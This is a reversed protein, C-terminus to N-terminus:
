QRTYRLRYIRGAHDDSILLSGDALQLVDVPRGLVRGGRLWGQVLPEVGPVAHDWRVAVVRYGIKESRNWSGHEAVIAARDYPPPFPSAGQRRYFRMGLPAVHAPLTVEPAIFDACIGASGFEPDVVRGGHCYPFGYHAGAATVRNIEGPPLDDGLWDRGNDTFWLQGTDPHWSFGVSNRVGHAVLQWDSGDPNMRSISGFELLAGDSSRFSDPRCVNCPAGISVYLKGDPGFGIYRQGHHSAAPLDDRLVVAPPPAELKQEIGDFRLIRRREAVYLAGDFFAVGNPSQLGSAITFRRDARGDGDHDRLARVTGGRRSGVFVTGRDGLALARAGDVEDAWLEIQFGDPVQLWDADDSSSAGGCAASGLLAIGALGYRLCARPTM